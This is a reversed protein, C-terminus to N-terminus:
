PTGGQGLHKAYMRFHKHEVMGMRRAAAIALPNSSSMWTSELVDFGQAMRRLADSLLVFARTRQYAKRIGVAYIVLTRVKKRDRMFRLFSLPGAKGHLKRLIPNVDLVCMLVGVPVGRHEVIAVLSPDTVMTLYKAAFLHEEQTAPLFHWNSSFADNFVDRVIELEHRFDDMRFHRTTFGDARREDPSDETRAGCLSRCDPNRATFLAEGRGFGASGLLEHYYPPNYTQFFVQDEDYRDELMGLESYHNPNFPGELTDINMRACEGEVAHFLARTAGTDNISEYFGFFGAHVNFKRCHMDNIVLATRAAPLGNRYCVYLDLTATRFYPNRAPDLTRKVDRTVPPVWHRNGRYIQSPLRLFDRLLRRNGVKHVEYEM